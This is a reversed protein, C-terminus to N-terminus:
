ALLTEILGLMAGADQYDVPVPWRSEARLLVLSPFSTAGLRQAQTIEELLAQVSAPDDFDDLFRAADLGIEGALEVLTSTDSPNRAQLYYAQQIALIMDEERAPAQRRTAIVARCAPWTSRRPRCREWFDFNFATGPVRQQIRRWTQQLDRRLHAPMPAADDPALGGLLREFRIGPPLTAHLRALTPRFAWCWSCMPDHVYVLRARETPQTRPSFRQDM